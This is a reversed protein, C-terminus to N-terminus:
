RNHALINRFEKISALKLLEFQSLEKQMNVTLPTVIFVNNAKEMKGYENLKFGLDHILKLPMRRKWNKVEVIYKKDYKEILFDYYIDHSKIIRYGTKNIIDEVKKEFEIYDNISSTKSNDMSPEKYKRLYYTFLTVVFSAVLTLAVFAIVENSSDSTKINKIEPFLSIITGLISATLALLIPLLTRKIINQRRSTLSVVESENIPMNELQIITGNIRQFIKERQEQTIFDTEFIRTYITNMIQSESLLDNVDVKYDRAKGELLRNIDDSKPTFEELVIRRVLIKEINDNAARIREKKAGITQRYTLLFLVVSIFVSFFTLLYNEM